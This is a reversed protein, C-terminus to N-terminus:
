IMSSIHYASRIQDYCDVWHEPNFQKHFEDVYGAVAIKGYSNDRTLSWVIHSLKTRLYTSGTLQITNRLIDLDDEIIDEPAFSRSGDNWIILPGFTREKAQYCMTSAGAIVDLIHSETKSPAKESAERILSISGTDHDKIVPDVSAIVDLVYQSFDM